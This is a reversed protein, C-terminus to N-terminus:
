NYQSLIFGTRNESYFKKSILWKSSDTKQKANTIYETLLIQALEANM